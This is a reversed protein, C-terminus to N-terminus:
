FGLSVHITSADSMRLFPFLQCSSLSSVHHWTHSLTPCQRPEERHGPGEANEPAWPQSSDVEGEMEEESDVEM